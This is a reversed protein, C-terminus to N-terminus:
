IGGGIIEFETKVEATQASTIYVAARGSKGTTKIYTGGMGGKLSIIEPGILEIPGETKISVPEGFFSLINNNEDRATIRLAAVDYTTKEQLEYRDAKVDLHIEHMPEKTVSKIVKGDKIADFRYKTSTGGWDGVYKNYIDAVDRYKMRHIVLVKFVTLYYKKPIDAMGYRAIANLGKNLSKVLSPSFSENEAISNGIFDDILIPGHKLSKFPSDTGKYEKIFKDNRYMKVSDANTYIWINGRIGGPREGIDMSSDVYLVPREDQQAEYAYAAAKPNRFMDTVGHYCIRDGSGFDKHTNYDFMCWGFSGAIDPEGAVADLVRVHRLAHEARNQEPDFSKTPYMHGNYESILYPKDRDAKAVVSSKKDCGATRGNHLFDNYTYVDELLSSKKHVRVGGTQRTPDAEHAAMNTRRYFEDDDSSENIRVGWLIISAHNRYQLIMEKVNEVAQNKWAENGIHQWGPMETFVLLGLRDCENLFYHSQPYHSTRVANVGLENKLIDADLRQMSEPMAYGVYPFSQHRNLGMLRVKRGNLYFGDSKFEAKRFGTKITKEDLVNENNILETKIEYFAPSETDWLMIDSLTNEIQLKGGSLKEETLPEFKETGCKRISQRISLGETFDNVEIESILTVSQPTSVDVAEGAAADVTSHVFVDSIYNKEKVDLWVERYLGGYTMYDIVFGFPPINLSENSDLKVVLTNESDLKLFESIDVTFATYGNNHEGAKKGNVYVECKHAAGDITLLVCKGNWEKPARFKRVYGSVMQYIHEDFCNFPTEKVTHPLRVETLECADYEPKLMEDTYKETFRWKDNLYIRERM